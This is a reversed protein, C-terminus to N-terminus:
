QGGSAGAHGEAKPWSDVKVYHSGGRDLNSRVLYIRRFCCEVPEMEKQAPPRRVKRLLTIHPQFNRRDVSLGADRLRAQLGAVADALAEPPKSSGAWVVRARRFWGIRDFRVTVDQWPTAAGIERVQPLREESVNGLFVVTMHIAEPVILKGSQGALLARGVDYLRRQEAPEPWLAFFLRQQREAQEMEM